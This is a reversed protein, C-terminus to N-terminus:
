RIVTFRVTRALGDAVVRAVYIGPQLGSADLELRSTGSALQRDALLAVERGLLDIVSVRVAGAENLTVALETRRSVPNPGALAIGLRADSPGIERAVATVENDPWVYLVSYEKDESEGADNFCNIGVLADGANNSFWGRVTCYGRDNSFSTVQVTGGATTTSGLGDFIVTYVGLSNRTATVAGGNSTYAREPDPAYNPNTRDAPHAYGVASGDAVPGGRLFLM